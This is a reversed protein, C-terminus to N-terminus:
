SPRHKEIMELLKPKMIPKTLYDSCGGELCRERDGKLAHATLAIIPREFGRERLQKTATLGDVGPMQIDMLILDIKERLAVSVGERGDNAYLLEAGTAGLFRSILRQNDIADEVILIRMGAFEYQPPAELETSVGEEGRLLGELTTFRSEGSEVGVPIEARFLSGRGSESSVLRVSGGLAEALQRSLALGLGSGGYKRTTSADGQSFVQFLKEQQAPAIGIGTDSVEAILLLRERRDGTRDISFRVKVEGSETFKVANSALNILIQLLRTEDTLLKTPLLGDGRLAFSIRKAGAKPEIAAKLSEILGRFAFTRPELELRDAEIKSLDLIDDVLTALHTANRRIAQLASRQEAVGLKPDLAIESFGLIVGLPTRIEHSMNALFQSKARSANEAENKAALVAIELKKKEEIDTYSGIWSIRDGQEDHVPVARLLQWRYIGDTRRVRIETELADGTQLCNQWVPLKESLDEPHIAKRWFDTNEKALRLGTFDIFRQNMFEIDGQANTLWTMQPAVDALARFREESARLAQDAQGLRLLARITAILVAPEVPHTLYSDAGGELGLVKDKATVFSASLHLIPIKRTIPDSKLQRAVDFGLMDPLHIDLTILDPNVSRALALAEQGNSAEVIHFGARTLHRGVAYRTGPTDDVVLVTTRESTNTSSLTGENLATMSDSM